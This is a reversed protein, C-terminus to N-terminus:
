AICKMLFDLLFLFDTMKKTCFIKQIKRKYNQYHDYTEAINNQFTMDKAKYGMEKERM